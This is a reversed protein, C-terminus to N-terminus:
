YNSEEKVEKPELITFDNNDTKHPTPIENHNGEVAWM